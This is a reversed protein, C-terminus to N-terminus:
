LIQNQKPVLGPLHSVSSLAPAADSVLKTLWGPPTPRTSRPVPAQKTELARKRLWRESARPTADIQM